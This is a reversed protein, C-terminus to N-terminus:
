SSAGKLTIIIIEPPNNLRFPFVSNGLGRSVVMSTTEDTYLGSDYEPFFGQGPALIGGLFPLRFQGGHAHGSLVLPFGQQVYLDFFEPRHSLLVTFADSALDSLAQSFAQTGSFAPDEVGAITIQRGDKELPVAQNRLVTVGAELLAAELRPYEPIRAEHNGPVYFCPAIEAAQEAFRVATEMDTRRSDVLDGTIAIIDPQCDALLQLLKQNDKGFQANHLDSIHAIQFGEFIGPLGPANVPFCDIQLRTNEWFGWLVLAICLLYFWYRKKM